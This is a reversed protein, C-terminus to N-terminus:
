LEFLPPPAASSIPLVMRFAPLEPSFMKLKPPM